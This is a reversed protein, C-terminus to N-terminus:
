TQSNEKQLGVSGGELIQDQNDETSMDQFRNEKFLAIKMNSLEEKYTV